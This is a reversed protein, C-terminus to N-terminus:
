TTPESALAAKPCHARVINLVAEESTLRKTVMPEAGGSRHARLPAVGIPLTAVHVGRLASESLVNLCVRLTLPDWLLLCPRPTSRLLRLAEDADAACQVSYGARELLTRIAQTLEREDEIVMISLNTESAM